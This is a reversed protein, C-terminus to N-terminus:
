AISSHLSYDGEESVIDLINFKEIERGTKLGVEYDPQGFSLHFAKCDLYFLRM